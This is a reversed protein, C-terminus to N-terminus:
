IFPTHPSEVGLAPPRDFAVRCGRQLRLEVARELPYEELKELGCWM